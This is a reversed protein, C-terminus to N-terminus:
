QGERYKSLYKILDMDDLAIRKHRDDLIKLQGKLNINAEFEYLLAVVQTHNPLLINQIHDPLRFNNVNVWSQIENGSTNKGGLAYLNPSVIFIVCSSYEFDPFFLEDEHAQSFLYRFFALLKNNDAFVVDGKSKKNIISIPTAVAFGGDKFAMYIKTKYFKLIAASLISDIQRYSKYKAFKKEDFSVYATCQPPPNPIIPLFNEGPIKGNASMNNIYDSLRNITFDKQRLTDRLLSDTTKVQNLAENYTKKSVCSNLLIVTLLLYTFLSKM